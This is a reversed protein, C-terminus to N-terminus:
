ASGQDRQIRAHVNNKKWSFESDVEIIELSIMLYGKDLETKFFSETCEMLRRGTEKKEIDSRGKGIRMLLDIFSNEHHADAIVVHNAPFARVRMGGIPYIGLSLIVDGIQTCYDHLNFKTELNESYQIQLHPM